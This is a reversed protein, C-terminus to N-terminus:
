PLQHAATLAVSGHGCLVGRRSVIQSAPLRSSPTYAVRKHGHLLVQSELPWRYDRHYLSKSLLLCRGTDTVRVGAHGHLLRSVQPQDNDPGRGHRM